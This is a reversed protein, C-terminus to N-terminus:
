NILRLLAARVLAYPAAKALSAPAFSVLTFRFSSRSRFAQQPQKRRVHTRFQINALRVVVECFEPLSLTLAASQDGGQEKSKGAPMPLVLACACRQARGAHCM